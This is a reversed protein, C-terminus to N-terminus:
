RPRARWLETEFPEARNFGVEECLQLIAPGDDGIVLEPLYARFDQEESGYTLPGKEGARLLCPAEQAPNLGERVGWGHRGDEEWLLDEYNREAWQRAAGESSLIRMPVYEEQDLDREFLIGAGPKSLLWLRVRRAAQDFM